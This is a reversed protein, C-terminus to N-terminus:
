MNRLYTWRRIMVFHHINEQWIFPLQVALESPM